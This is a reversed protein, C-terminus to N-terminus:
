RLFVGRFSVLQRQFYIFQLFFQAGFIERQNAAKLADVWIGLVTLLDTRYELREVSEASILCFPNAFGGTHVSFRIGSDTGFVGDMPNAITPSDSCSQPHECNGEKEEAQQAIAELRSSRRELGNFIRNIKSAM